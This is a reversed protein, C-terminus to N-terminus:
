VALWYPLVKCIFIVCIGYITHCSRKLSAPIPFLVSCTRLVSFLIIIVHSSLYVTSIYIELVIPEAHLLHLLVETNKIM